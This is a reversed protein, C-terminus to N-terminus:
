EGGPPSPNARDLAQLVLCVYFMVPAMLSDLLRQDTIGYQRRWAEPICHLCVSAAEPFAGAMDGTMEPLRGIKRAVNAQEIVKNLTAEDIDRM